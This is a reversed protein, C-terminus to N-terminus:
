DLECVLSRKAVVGGAIMRRAGKKTVYVGAGTVVSVLGGDDWYLVEPEWGRDKRL